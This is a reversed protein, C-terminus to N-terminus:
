AKTPLTLHTYSVPMTSRSLAAYPLMTHSVCTATRPDVIFPIAQRLGVNPRLEGDPPVLLSESVHETCYGANEDTVTKLRRVVFDGGLQVTLEAGGSLRHGDRRIQVNPPQNAQTAVSSM